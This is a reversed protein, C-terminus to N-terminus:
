FHKLFEDNKTTEDFEQFKEKDTGDPTGGEHFPYYDDDYINKSM